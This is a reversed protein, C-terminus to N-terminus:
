VVRLDRKASDVEGGGVVTEEEELWYGVVTQRLGTRRPLTTEGGGVVTEEEELWDGVVTQRLGTRRPLTTQCLLGRRSLLKVGAVNERTTIQVNERTTSQVNNGTNEGM